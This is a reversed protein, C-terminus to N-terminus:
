EELENKWKERETPPYQWPASYNEINNMMRLLEQPANSQEMVLFRRMDIIISAPDIYLPCAETCAMCTTCAWIEEPSIYHNLLTKNDEIFKGNNQINAGVEEIRNRVSMMIKRPSLKKETINAPCVDTCRGCEVCSYANLLQIKNLDLVDEAGFKEPINESQNNLSFNPNLMQRIEQTVSPINNIAGSNEKYSYWINPFALFIHLHKSYCIYNLFFIIGIFHGWWAMREFIILSKSSFNDLFGGLAWESVPFFGYQPYVGRNQLLNDTANMSFFAMIIMFELILIWNADQKAWGKLDSHNLRKIKILNRRIFFIIVAIITILAFIELICTFIKYYYPQFKAFFRHTGLVGDILIEIFEINLIFFGVYVLFHLVGVIPKNNMRGQGLAIKLVLQWRKKRQNIYPTKQGLSINTYIRKMNKIFISIGMMLILLFLFNDWYLM